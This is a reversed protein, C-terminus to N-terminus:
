SSSADANEALVSAIREPEVGLEALLEGTHEGRAPPEGGRLLEFGDAFSFPTPQEFDGDRKWLGRRRAHEDELAQEFSRVASVCCDSGAFLALWHELPHSEILEGVERKLAEQVGRDRQRDVWEPREVLACFRAWFKSEFAGVALWRDDGTRYLNYCAFAGDLMGEGPEAVRGAEAYEAAEVTPLSLLADYMSVDLWSGRGHNSRAYLGAFIATLAALGAVADGLQIGVIQPGDRDSGARRGAGITELLGALGMVNIDHAADAAFPSDQGFATISCMVLRPNRERLQPWGLGLREMVGPRFQEVVVDAAEVLDLFAARGAASKLDLAVSEKGLSLMRFFASPVDSELAAGGDHGPMMHVERAYDGLRPDEVKIVRAGLSRATSTCYGGPGLRTLDLLVAPRGDAGELVTAM